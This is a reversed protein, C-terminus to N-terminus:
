YESFVEKPKNGKPHKIRREGDNKDHKKYCYLGVLGIITLSVAGVVMGIILDVNSCCMEDKFSSSENKWYGQTDQRNDLYM